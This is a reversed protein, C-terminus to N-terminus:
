SSVYAVLFSRTVTPSSCASKTDHKRQCLRCPIAQREILVREIDDKLGSVHRYMHLLNETSLDKM